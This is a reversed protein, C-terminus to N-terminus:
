SFIKLTGEHWGPLVCPSHFCIDRPANFIAAWVIFRGIMLKTSYIKQIHKVAKKKNKKNKKVSKLLCVKVLPIQKLWLCLDSVVNYWVLNNLTHLDCKVEATNKYITLKDKWVSNIVVTLNM